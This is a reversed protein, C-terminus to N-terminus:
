DPKMPELGTVPTRSYLWTTLAASEFDTTAASMPEFGIVGM